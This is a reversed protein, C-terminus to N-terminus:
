FVQVFLLASGVPSSKATALKIGRGIGRLYGRQCAGVLATLLPYQALELVVFALGALFVKHYQYILRLALLNAARLTLVRRSAHAGTIGQRSFGGRIQSREDIGQLNAKTLQLARAFDPTM